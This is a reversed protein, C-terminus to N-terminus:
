ADSGTNDSQTDPAETQSEVESDDADLVEEDPEEIRAIGVLAEEDALRILM